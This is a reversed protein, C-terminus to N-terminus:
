VFLIVLAIGACMGLTQYNRFRIDKNQNLAALEEECAACIAELGRLQGPLDFRGLSKGLRYLLKRVSAPLEERHKRVVANMCGSVEPAIQQELEQSLMFFLSRLTGDTEKGTMACLQPLPTLRFKLESQMFQLSLRLQRLLQIERRYANALSFGFGGCGTVILIAGIWKYTM